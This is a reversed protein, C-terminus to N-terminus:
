RRAQAFAELAVQIDSVREAPAHQITKTIMTVFHACEDKTIPCGINGNPGDSSILEAGDGDLIVIWPIGGTRTGRLKKAVEDGLEMAEVDIKLLLYDDAFLERNM